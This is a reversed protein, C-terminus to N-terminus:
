DKKPPNRNQEPQYAPQEKDKTNSQNQQQQHQQAHNNNGNELSKHTAAYHKHTFEREAQAGCVYFSPVFLASPAFVKLPTPIRQRIGPLFSAALLVSFTPIACKLGATWFVRRAEEMKAREYEEMDIIKKTM